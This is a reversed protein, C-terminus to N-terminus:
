ELKNFSLLRNKEILEHKLSEIKSVMEMREVFHLDERKIAEEILDANREELNIVDDQLDVVTAM